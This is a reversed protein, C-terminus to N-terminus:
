NKISLLAIKECLTDEINEDNVIQATSKIYKDRFGTSCARIEEITAKNLQQPTPFAYYEQNKYELTKNM